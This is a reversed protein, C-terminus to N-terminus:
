TGPNAQHFQSSFRSDAGFGHFKDAIAQNCKGIRSCQRAVRLQSLNGHGRAFGNRSKQGDRSQLLICFAQYAPYHRRRPRATAAPLDFIGKVQLIPRRPVRKQLWEELGQNTAAIVRVNTRVTENGGVREFGEELVRLIKVQLMEAHRRNRRSVPHRSLLARVQWRRSAGTFAGKEHGFLESELLTEPIAACNVALLPSECRHSHPPNGPGGTGQRHRKRRSHVGHGDQPAVRGIAKYIEQIQPSKGVFVQGADLCEPDLPVGVPVNMKERIDIAKYVLEKLQNLDLPKILYDFAGAKMAEIATESDSSGTIFIVPLKADLAHFKQFAELGSMGPLKVDLPRADLTTKRDALLHSEPKPM